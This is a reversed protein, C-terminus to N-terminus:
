KLEAWRANRVLVDPNALSNRDRAALRRALSKARLGTWPDRAKPRREHSNARKKWECDGTPLM